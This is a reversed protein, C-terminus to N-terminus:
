DAGAMIQNGDDPLERDPDLIGILTRLLLEVNVSWLLMAGALLAGYMYRLKFLVAQGGFWDLPIRMASANFNGGFGFTHNWGIPIAATLVMLSLCLLIFGLILGIRKPLANLLMDISVFGGWRMASPAILGTMWLMCFRAAEEPWAQANNFVYRFVVQLLIVFVMIALSVWAIQRGIKLLFSNCAMLGALFGSLIRM